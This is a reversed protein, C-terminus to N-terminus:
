LYNQRDGPIEFCRPSNKVRDKAPIVAPIVGSLDALTRREMGGPNGPDSSAAIKDGKLGRGGCWPPNKTYAESRVPLHPIRLRFRGTISAPYQAAITAALM